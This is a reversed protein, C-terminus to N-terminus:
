AVAVSAFSGGQLVFTRFGLAYGEACCSLIQEDTLVYRECASNSRRIGCYLCDNRCINSFEVIGRVYIARGFHQQAISRALEAAYERDGSDWSSLLKTWQERPLSRTCNLEDIRERNNMNKMRGCGSVSIGPRSAATGSIFLGSCDM